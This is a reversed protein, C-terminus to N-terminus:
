YNLVEDYLYKRLVVFLVETRFRKVLNPLGKSVAGAFARQEFPSIGQYIMGRLHGLNGFKKGMKSEAFSFSIPQSM